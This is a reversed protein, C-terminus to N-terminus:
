DQWLPQSIPLIVRIAVSSPVRIVSIRTLAQAFSNPARQINHLGAEYMTTVDRILDDAGCHAHVSDKTRAQEFRDILCAQTM